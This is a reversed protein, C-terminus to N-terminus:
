LWWTALDAVAHAIAPAAVGGSLFRLGGLCLGVALDLPVVAPGYLPVHLLAFALATGLLAAPAGAAASLAEFLAGRLVAEEGTAVLVTVVAWPAFPVAHGVSLGELGLRGALAVGILGAAGALGMGLTGAVAFMSGSTRPRPEPTAGAALAVAVLGVGFAAGVLLADAGAGVLSARLEVVAALGIVLATARLMPRGLTEVGAISQASAGRPSRQGGAPSRSAAQWRLSM